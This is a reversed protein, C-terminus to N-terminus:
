IQKCQINNFSLKIGPGRKNHGTEFYAEFTFPEKTMPLSLNGGVSENPQLDRVDPLLTWGFTSRSARALEIADWKKQWFSRDLRKFENTQSKFRWNGLDFWVVRDSKNRFVATFFCANALEALAKAPFGRGEYFAAMQETTRPILRFRFQENEIVPGEPKDEAVVTKVPVLMVLLLVGACLLRERNILRSLISEPMMM